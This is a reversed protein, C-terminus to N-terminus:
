LCWINIKGNEVQFFNTLTLPFVFNFQIFSQTCRSEKCVTRYLCEYKSRFIYTVNLWKLPPFWELARSRSLFWFRTYFLRDNVLLNIVDDNSVNIISNTPKLENSPMVKFTWKNVAFYRTQVSDCEVSLSRYHSTGNWTYSNDWFVRHWGIYIHGRHHVFMHSESERESQVTGNISSEHTYAFRQSCM